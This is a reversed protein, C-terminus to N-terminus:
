RRRSMRKRHSRKRHSRKKHSRKRHRYGGTYPNNKVGVEFDPSLDAVHIGETTFGVSSMYPTNPIFHEWLRQMTENSTSYTAGTEMNKVIIKGTGSEQRISFKVM